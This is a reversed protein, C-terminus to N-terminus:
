WVDADVSACPAPDLDHGLRSAGGRPAALGGPRLLRERVRIRILARGGSRAGLGARRGAAQVGGAHAAARLDDGRGHAHEADAAVAGRGDLLDGVLHADGGGGHQAVEALLLQEGLHEPLPVPLLREHRIRSGAEGRDAGEDVEHPVVHLVAAEELQVQGERGLRAVAWSYM